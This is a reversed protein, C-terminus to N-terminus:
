FILDKKKFIAASIIFSFIGYLSIIGFGTVIEKMAMGSTLLKYTNFYNSIMYISTEPFFQDMFLSVVLFGVGSLAALSSNPMLLCFWMMVMGFSVYSIM